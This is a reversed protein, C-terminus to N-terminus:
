KRIRLLPVAWVGGERVTFKGNESEKKKKREKKWWGLLKGARENMRENKREKIFCIIKRKRETREKKREKM